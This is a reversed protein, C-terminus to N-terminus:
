LYLDEEGARKSKWIDLYFPDDKSVIYPLSLVEKTDDYQVVTGCLVVFEETEKM